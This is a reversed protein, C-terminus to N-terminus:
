GKIVKKFRFEPATSLQEMGFTQTMAEIFDTRDAHINLYYHTVGKAWLATEVDRMFLMRLKPTLGEPFHVPDVENAVRLVATSTGQQTDLAVVACGIDLDSTEKIAEIEEPTALRLRNM